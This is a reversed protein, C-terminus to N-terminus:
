ALFRAFGGTILLPLRLCSGGGGGAAWAARSFGDSSFVSFGVLVGFAVSISGIRSRCGWLGGRGQSLYVAFLTIWRKTTLPSTSSVADSGSSFTSSQADRIGFAVTSISEIRSSSPGHMVSKWERHLPSLAAMPRNNLSIAFCGMGGCIVSSRRPRSLCVSPVSGRCAVARCNRSASQLICVGPSLAAPYRRVSLLCMMLISDANAVVLASCSSSLVNWLTDPPATLVRPGSRLSMLGAAIWPM